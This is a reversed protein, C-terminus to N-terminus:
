VFGLSSLDPRYLLKQEPDSVIEQLLPWLEEQLLVRNPGADEDQDVLGVPLQQPLQLVHYLVTVGDGEYRGQMPSLPDRM